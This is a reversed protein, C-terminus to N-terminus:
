GGIKTLLLVIAIFPPLSTVALWVWARTASRVHFVAMIIAAYILFSAITSTLVAEARQLPLVLPAAATLLFVFGYGGITAALVRSAVSWRHRAASSPRKVVFDGCNGTFTTARRIYDM